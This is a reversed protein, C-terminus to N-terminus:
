TESDDYIFKLKFSIGYYFFFSFPAMQRASNASPSATRTMSAQSWPKWACQMRAPLRNASARGARRAVGAATAAAACGSSAARGTRRAARWGSNGSGRRRILGSTRGSTSRAPGQQRQRAAQHPRPTMTTFSRKPSCWAHQQEPCTDTNRLKEEVQM